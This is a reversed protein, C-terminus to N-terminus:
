KPRFRMSHVDGSAADVIITKYERVFSKGAMASLPDKQPTERSYGVTVHWEAGSQEVEEVLVDAFKENAYIDNFFSLAERVADRVGMDPM